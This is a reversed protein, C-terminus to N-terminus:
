SATDLQGCITRIDTRYGRFQHGPVTLEGFPEALQADLGAMGAGGFTVPECRHVFEALQAGLGAAEACELAFLDGHSCLGGREKEVWERVPSRRWANRCAM